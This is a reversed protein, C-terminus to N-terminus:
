RNETGAVGDGHRQYAIGDQRTEVRVRRHQAHAGVVVDGRGRELPVGAHLDVVGGVEGVPGEERPGEGAGRLEVHAAVGVAAAHPGRAQGVVAGLEPEDVGVDLALVAGELVRVVVDHSGVGDGPGPGIRDVGVRRAEVRREEVVVVVLLVEDVHEPVVALARVGEGADGQLLEVWGGVFEGARALVDEGAGVEGEDLAGMEVLALPPVVEQGGFAAGAVVVGHGEAARAGNGARVLQVGLGVDEGGFVVRERGELTGAVAVDDVGGVAAGVEDVEGAAGGGLEAPAHEAALGGDLFGEPGVVVPQVDLGARDGGEVDVEGGRAVVGGVPGGLGVGEGGRIEGDVELPQAGGLGRSDEVGGGGVTCEGEDPALGDAGPEFLREDGAALLM